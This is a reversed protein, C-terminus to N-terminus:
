KPKEFYIFTDIAGGKADKKPKLDAIKIKKKADKKSAKTQNKM